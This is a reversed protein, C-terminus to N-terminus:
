NQVEKPDAISYEYVTYTFITDHEYDRNIRKAETTFIIDGNNHDYEKVINTTYEDGVSYEIEKILIDGKYYANYSYTCKKNEDYKFISELLGNDYYNYIAESYDMYQERKLKKFSMDTYERIVIESFSFECDNLYLAIQINKYYFYQIRNLRSDGEEVLLGENNYHYSYYDFKTRYKKILKGDENYEYTETKNDDEFNANIDFRYIIRGKEDYKEHLVVTNESDTIKYKIMENNNYHYGYIEDVSMNNETGSSMTEKVVKIDGNDLKTIVRDIQKIYGDDFVTKEVTNHGSVPDRTIYVKNKKVEM